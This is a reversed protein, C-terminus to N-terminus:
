RTKLHYLNYQFQESFSVEFYIINGKNGFIPTYHLIPIPTIKSYVIMYLTLFM